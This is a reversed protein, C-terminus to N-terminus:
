LFDSLIEGKKQEKIMMKEFQIANRNKGICSYYLVLARYLSIKEYVFARKGWGSKIQINEKIHSDLMTPVFSFLNEFYAEFYSPTAQEPNLRILACQHLFYYPSAPNEKEEQSIKNFLQLAKKVQNNFLLAWIYMPLFQTEQQIYAFFPLLKKSNELTLGRQLLYRLLRSEMSNFPFSAKRLFLQLCIELSQTQNQIAINFYHKLLLFQPMHYSKSLQTLLHEVLKVQEMELLTFLINGIFLLFDPDELSLKQVMEYLMMPKSLWFALQIALHRHTSPTAASPPLPEIFPLEKWHHTLEKLLTQTAETQVLQPLHYLMLLAFAYAARRDYRATYHLRYNIQEEIYHLLPHKAYKRIAFELCKVEEELNDESKYVLSKGLYELPAGPSDYLKEFEDLAKSFYRRREEQDSCTKARAILSLGARFLAEREESRGKFSHAIQRYEALSKEYEKNMFFADPISLCNVMVNHSGLLISLQEVHYHTDKSLIGVHGGILPMHSVYHFILCGDIRLLLQNGVKEIQVEYPTNVEFTMSPVVMIEVHSYFLKCGVDRQLGLWILYGEELSTRESPDPLCLLFGLGRSESHLTLTTRIQINGLYSRKSVMLHVWEVSGPSAIAAHQSLLINEQFEWDSEKAISLNDSHMWDPKGEIYEEVAIIIERVSAYRNDPHPKLCKKVINSLLPPIDRYPAVRQPEIWTEKQHTKRFTPLSGRRFPLTLTLLEYLLVGLAYIDSQTTSPHGFAREPAMYNITGVIKGPLTTASDADISPGEHRPSPSTLSRAIGWDLIVVEGFRGIMINEPKIDRHVFGNSHAYDIAQCVKLFARILSPISTEILTPSHMATVKKTKAQHLIHKLTEGEIYPMTYYMHTEKVSISYIPIISPHPLQAAIKSESLFRQKISSYKMLKPLIKKLAIKRECFPDKALFIEGMGGKGISKLLSYHDLPQPFTHLHEENM